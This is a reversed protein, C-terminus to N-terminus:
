FKGLHRGFRLAIRDNVYLKVTELGQSILHYSMKGRLSYLGQRGDARTFLLNSKKPTHDTYYTVYHM